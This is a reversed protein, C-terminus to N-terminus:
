SLMERKKSLREGRGRGRVCLKGVGFAEDDDENMSALCLLGMRSGEVDFLSFCGFEGGCTLRRWAKNHM